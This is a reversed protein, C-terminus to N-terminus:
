ICNSGLFIVNTAPISQLRTTTLSTTTNSPYLTSHLNCWVIYAVLFPVIWLVILYFYIRMLFHFSKLSKEKFFIGIPVSINGADLLLLIAMPLNIEFWHSQHFISNSRPILTLSSAFATCFALVALVYGINCFNSYKDEMGQRQTGKEEKNEYENSSTNSLSIISIGNENM